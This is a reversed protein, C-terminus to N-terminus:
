RRPQRRQWNCARIVRAAILRAPFIRNLPINDRDSTKLCKAKSGEVYFVFAAALAADEVNPFDSLSCRATDIIPKGGAESADIILIM